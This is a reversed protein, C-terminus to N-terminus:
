KGPGLRTVSGDAYCVTNHIPCRVIVMRLDDAKKGAGYYDYSSGIMSFDSWTVISRRDRSRESPCILVKPRVLENSISLLDQPYAGPHDAEWLRIALGIQKLNNQCSIQQARGKAKALAPLTLGAGIPLFLLFVGSVVIGAIAVGSGSLRGNSNRIRVLSIIGLILGIFATVGCTPAGLIGLILSTVAMGSTKGPAAPQPLVMGSGASQPTVPTQPSSPQSALASAFEPFESIPRWEAGGEPQILTQGNARREAIWQRVVEASIPGYEKNDSGIIKYM